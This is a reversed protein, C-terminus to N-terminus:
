IMNSLTVEPAIGRTPIELAILQFRFVLFIMEDLIVKLIQIGYSFQRYCLFLLCFHGKETHAKVLTIANSPLPFLQLGLLSFFPVTQDWPSKQQVRCTSIQTTLIHFLSLCSFVLGTEQIHKLEEYRQIYGVINKHPLNNM